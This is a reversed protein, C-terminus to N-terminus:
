EVRMEAENDIVINLGMFSKFATATSEMLPPSEERLAGWEWDNIILTKPEKGQHVLNQIKGAVKESMTAM